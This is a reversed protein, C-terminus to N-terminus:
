CLGKWSGARARWRQIEGERYDVHAEAGTKRSDPYVTVGVPSVTSLM